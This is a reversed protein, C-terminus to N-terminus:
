PDTNGDFVDGDGAYFPHEMGLSHGWEYLNVYQHYDCNDTLAPYNVFLEWGAWGAIALGLTQGSGSGGLEIEQDYYFATDAQSADGAFAFDLDIISDLWNM